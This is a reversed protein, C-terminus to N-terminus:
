DRLNQEMFSIAFDSSSLRAFENGGWHAGKEACFALGIKQLVPSSLKFGNNLAVIGKSTLKMRCNTFSYANPNFVVDTTRDFSHSADKYITLDINYDFEEAIDSLEKCAEAPVWDDLEGALIHIPKNTFRLENPVIMCPPYFPLHAAFMLNPSIQEQIPAWATFLAVGGGLSWGTIGVNDILINKDKNLEKLAMFADYVVMPITVSLQEGVTSTVKRSKFSHLSMVAFGKKLYRDLYGFHHNDWGASGAVGIILPFTGITDPKTLIAYVKQNSIEDIRTFIDYFNFPNKSNIIIIEQNNKLALRAEELANNIDIEQYLPTISIIYGFISLILIFISFVVKKM